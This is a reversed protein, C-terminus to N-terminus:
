GTERTRTSLLVLDRLHEANPAALWRQRFKKEQVIQAIAMLARLHYNREDPSGVLIFATKVYPKDVDFVIGERCRVLVIDFLHHGKLIVHPIALGPQVITSSDAERANFKELLTEKEMGLRRALVDAAQAFMKAASTPGTLDLIECDRVIFDFRDHVIEDRQIAIARLEDELHGRRIDPSVVQRVMHVLASERSLNKRVYLFYWLVGAAVFGGITILPVLGLLAILEVILMSYIGIGALQMWPYMWSRYRPRYNQLRSNRMILVALNALAFLVLMMTSAVKVLDAISLMLIMAVMFATTLVVSLYPTGFRRSVRGLGPPLLGDISMAMPTRSAALIGGNGTTIFALMAAASLLIVGGTGMFRGAATSLPTLDGYPGRALDAGVTGVTVFVALVYLISVVVFALLMARPLNRGPNHVEEGISAAHTLGGFSIFVLGATAFVSAFGRGLFKDFNPHQRVSGMGLAVFIGLVLLIGVVMVIQSRGVVKVSLCNALGFVVCGGVAVGKIAWEWQQPSLNTDAWLLQAFAGIGVMAFASKLALSFWNAFGAL